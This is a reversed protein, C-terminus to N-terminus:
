PEIFQLSAFTSFGKVYLCIKKIATTDNQTFQLMFQTNPPMFKSFDTKMAGDNIIPSFFKHRNNISNVGTLRYSSTIRRM